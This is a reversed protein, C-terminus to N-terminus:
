DQPYTNLLVQSAADVVVIWSVPISSFGSSLTNLKLSVAISSVRPSLYTPGLKFYVSM